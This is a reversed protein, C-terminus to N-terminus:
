CIVHTKYCPIPGHCIDCTGALQVGRWDITKDVVPPFLQQTPYVFVAPRQELAALRKEVSELDDRVGQFYKDLIKEAIATIAKYLLRSMMTSSYILIVM